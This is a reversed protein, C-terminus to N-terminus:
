QFAMYLNLLTWPIVLHCCILTNASLMICTCCLLVGGVEGRRWKEGGRWKEGEMRGREKGWEWRHWARTVATAESLVPRREVGWVRPDPWPLPLDPPGEGERMSGAAEGDGERASRAIPPASGTVELSSSLPPPKPRHCPAWPHCSTWRRHCRSYRIRQRRARSCHIQHRRSRCHRGWHHRSCCRLSLSPPPAPYLVAPSPTALLSLPSPIPAEALTEPNIKQIRNQQIKNKCATLPKGGLYNSIKASLFWVGIPVRASWTGAFIHESWM